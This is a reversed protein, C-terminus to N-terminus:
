RCRSCGIRGSCGNSAMVKIIAGTSTGGILDFDDCLRFSAGGGVRARLIDEIQELSQVSVLGRIDGVDLALIRKANADCLHHDRTKALM